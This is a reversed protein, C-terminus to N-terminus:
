QTVTRNGVILSALSPWLNYFFVFVAAVSWGYLMTMVLGYMFNPVDLLKFQPFIENLAAHEPLDPFLAWFVICAVYLVNFLMCTAFMAPLYAVPQQRTM